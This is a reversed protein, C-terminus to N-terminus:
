VTCLLADTLWEALTVKKARSLSYSVSFSLCVSSVCSLGAPEQSFSAM